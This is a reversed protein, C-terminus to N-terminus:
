EVSIVKKLFFAKIFSNRDVFENHLSLDNIIVANLSTVRCLRM